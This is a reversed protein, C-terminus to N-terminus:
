AAGGKIVRLRGNADRKLDSPSSLAAPVVGKSLQTFGHVLADVRDPSDRDEYPVWETQQTELDTLLGVHHIRGQEYLSVIPEARLAKGRRSQVRIIRPHADIAQLNATVMDGGYNTEVVVADASFEDYAAMAASAWGVPSYHGSRDALVYGENDAWGVVVIGTEDAGKRVSGAPDISVVIRNLHPAEAVRSKEIMEWNWLAGEVDELVEAHLEQRGLRTGEYKKIIREAFVPSLNDINDYTSAISIRTTEEAMLEKLWPRPKPTTTACVRPHAGLRLGFMMQDWVESVLPWHAPEDAWIFYHQPGRLRDPEEASYLHGTAGNPWTLKRKSPEYTPRKGPPATVLLGSEGELMVDRVDPATAGVLGIRPVKDIVRHTLESGTRTKGSGRGSKLLWVVWESDTPPRQDARAHNWVWEGHPKGDCTLIPCYFPRWNDNTRERLMALAKEQAAPTWSKFDDTGITV